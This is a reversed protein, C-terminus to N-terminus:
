DDCTVGRGIPPLYMINRDTKWLCYNEGILWLSRFWLFLTEEFGFFYRKKLIRYFLNREPIEEGPMDHGPLATM